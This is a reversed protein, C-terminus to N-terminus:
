EASWILFVSIPLVHPVYPTCYPAYLTKTLFGSPFLGNSICLRLYSSSILITRRSTSHHPFPHYVSEIQSLITVPSPSKHVRYHVKLNWLIRPIKSYRNAEWSPSQEMSNTLGLLTYNIPTESTNQTNTNTNTRALTIWDHPDNNTAFFFM